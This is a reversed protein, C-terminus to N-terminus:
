HEKKLDKNMELKQAALSLVAFNLVLTVLFFFTNIMRSNFFLFYQIGHQPVLFYCGIM